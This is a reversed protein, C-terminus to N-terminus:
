FEARKDEDIGTTKRINRLNLFAFVALVLVFICTTLVHGTNVTSFARGLRGIMPFLSILSLLSLAAFFLFLILSFLRKGMLILGGVLFFVAPLIGIGLTELAYEFGRFSSAEGIFYILPFGALFVASITYLMANSVTKRKKQRTIYLILAGILFLFLTLASYWIRDETLYGESFPLVQLHYYSILFGLGTLFATASSWVKAKNKKM